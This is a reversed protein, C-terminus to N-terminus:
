TSPAMFVADLRRVQAEDLGMLDATRMAQQYMSELERPGPAPQCAVADRYGDIAAGPDDEYLRAEAQTALRWKAQAPNEDARARRCHDFALRAHTRAEARDKLWALQMFAVNIAHYYAQAEDGSAASQRYASAYLDLAHTADEARRDVLWRRKLRGALVGAADTSSRTHQGSSLVALADAQRGVSELALALTVVADDDLEDAHPLWRDIVSQFQRTEVALRASDWAGAVPAKGQLHDVLAQVSPHDIVAPKVIEVHNGPVVACAVDPFDGGRFPDLSSSVPVFEDRDGAVVLLRFPHRAPHAFRERWRTRVETIYAGDHAMDQLHRKLFWALAAKVLGGSPTGYLAVHGTRNRLEEDDLLARQVVLGGMSHAVLALSHYSGLYLRATTALQTAITALAPDGSWLGRFDVRLRSSYGLCHIDWGSLAQTAELWHPFEQWTETINGGFGHLFVVAAQNGQQERIVSRYEDM